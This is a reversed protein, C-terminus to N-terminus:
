ARRHGIDLGRRLKELGSRLLVVGRRLNLHAHEVKILATGIIHPDGAVVKLQSSAVAEDLSMCSHQRFPRVKPTM